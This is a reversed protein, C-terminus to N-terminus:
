NLNVAVPAGPPPVVTKEDAPKEVTNLVASYRPSFLSTSQNSTSSKEKSWADSRGLDSECITELNAAKSELKSLNKCPTTLAGAKALHAGSLLALGLWAGRLFIKQMGVTMPRGPRRSFLVM